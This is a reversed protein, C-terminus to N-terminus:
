RSSIPLHEGCHGIVIKRRTGDWYFHVRVTQTPDDAIGSKLHRLMQVQAGDCDFTRYRRLARSAMVTESEKAAYENKGFVHRAKADGGDLLGARYSTVLRILLDLLECGNIFPSKRASRRASDLVMCKDRHYQEIIDLCELPSPQGKRAVLRLLPAPDFDVSKETGVASLQSKVSRLRFNNNRLEEQTDLLEDELRSIENLLDENEEALGEFAREQEEEAQQSAEILAQRGEAGKMRIAAAQRQEMRRRTSLLRVGEPRVHERLRPVNTTVTVWALVRSIRQPNEGWAQIEGSLFLRSRVEGSPSPISLVNVAGDWASMRRGLEDAMEYTNSGPVVHVVNALGILTKQLETPSVLYAGERTPSVLVIAADRDRRHIDYSFARYSDRDEGITWLVEGPVAEAFAAEKADAVNNVIYRIVRPQSASVPTSVLTSGEDTKVVCSVELTGGSKKVGVEVTWRRGRVAADGHKLVWACLAPEGDYCSFIHLRSRLEGRQGNHVGSSLLLEPHLGFGLQEKLWGGIARFVVSESAAGHVQLRNAYVLMWRSGKPHGNVGTVTAEPTDPVGFMDCTLHIPTPM